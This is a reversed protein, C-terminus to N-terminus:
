NFQRETNEQLENLKTLVIKFEKNPLDVSRKMDEPNTVPLNNHDKPSMM